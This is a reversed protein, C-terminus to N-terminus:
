VFCQGTDGNCVACLPRKCLWIEIYGPLGFLLSWYEQGGTLFNCRCLYKRGLMDWTPLPWVLVPFGPRDLELAKAKLQSMRSLGM